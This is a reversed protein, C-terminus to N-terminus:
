IQYVIESRQWGRLWVVKRRKYPYELIATKIHLVKYQLWPIVKVCSSTRHVHIYIDHLSIQVGLIMISLRIILPFEIKNVYNVYTYVIFIGKYWPTIHKHVYAHTHINIHTYANKNTHWHTCTHMHTHTQRHRHRHACTHQSHM